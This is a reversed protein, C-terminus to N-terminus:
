CAGSAACGEAATRWRRNSWAAALGCSGMRRLREVWGRVLCRPAPTWPRCTSWCAPCCATARWRRRTRGCRGSTTRGRPTTATPRSPASCHLAPLDPLPPLLAVLVHQGLMPVRGAREQWRVQATLLPKADAELEGLNCYKRPLGDRPTGGEDAAAEGTAATGHLPRAATAAAAGRGTALRRLALTARQM